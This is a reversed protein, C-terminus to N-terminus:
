RGVASYSVSYEVQQKGITGCSLPCDLNTFHEMKEITGRSASCDLKTLYKMDRNYESKPFMWLESVLSNTRHFRGRSPSCELNIACKMKKFTGPSPLVKWVWFEQNQWNYWSKPSIWFKPVIGYQRFNVLYAQCLVDDQWNPIVLM